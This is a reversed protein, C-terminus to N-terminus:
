HTKEPEPKGLKARSEQAMSVLLRRIEGSNELQSPFVYRQVETKEQDSLYLDMGYKDMGLLVAKKAWSQELLAHAYDLLNQSHDANMHEIMGRLNAALIDPEAEQYKELSVSGVRGFGAVVYARLTTFTYLKFDHFGGLVSKPNVKQWHALHSPHDSFQVTGSLTARGTAFARSSNADDTLLLSAKSELKLNKSHQALDSMLLLADGNELPVIEVLSTFPFGDPSLSGLIAREARAM